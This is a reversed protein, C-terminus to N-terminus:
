EVDVDLFGEPWAAVFFFAVFFCEAVEVVRAARAVPVV